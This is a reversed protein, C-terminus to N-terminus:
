AVGKVLNYQALAQDVCKKVSRSSVTAGTVVGIKADPNIKNTNAEGVLGFKNNSFQNDFGHSTAGKAVVLDMIKGSAKNIVVLVKVTVYENTNETNFVYCEEDNKIGQYVVKVGSILEVELKVPSTVEVEALTKELEKKENELRAPTTLINVGALIGASLLGLISLFIALYIPYPLKKM